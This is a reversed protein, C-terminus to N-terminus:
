AARKTLRYREALLTNRELQLRSWDSATGDRNATVANRFQDLLAELEGLKRDIERIRDNIREQM